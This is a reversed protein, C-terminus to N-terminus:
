FQTFQTYKSIHSCFFQKSTILYIYKETFLPSLCYELKADSQPTHSPMNNQTHTSPQPFHPNQYTTNSIQTLNHINLSIRAFFHTYITYIKNYTLLMKNETILYIYKETFLPSLCYELKADSQPTHSPINNQTHM